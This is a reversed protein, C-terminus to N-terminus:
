STKDNSNSGSTPLSQADQHVLNVLNFSDFFLKAGFVFLQFLSSNISFFFQRILHRAKAPDFVLFRILVELQRALQGTRQSLQDGLAVHEGVSM